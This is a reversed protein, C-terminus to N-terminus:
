SLSGPAAIEKVASQRAEHLAHTLQQALEPSRPDMQRTVPGVPGVWVIIIKAFPKPIYAKNWAKEFVWKRDCSVGAAFMPGEMLRSLEFIGPKVVHIPGKPGDVALSTNRGENKMIRILGKLASSGGRTSSGRAATGGLLRVVTNMMEGDKSTSIITAIRYRRVLSVLPIEDGHWHALIVPTKRRLFNRMEPPERVELQWTWSLIRYFIWVLFALFYKRFV